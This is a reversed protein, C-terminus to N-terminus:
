QYAEALQQAAFAAWDQDSSSAEHQDTIAALQEALNEQNPPPMIQSAMGNELLWAAYWRPWDEDRQGDLQEQEYEHHAQGAQELLNKLLNEDPM